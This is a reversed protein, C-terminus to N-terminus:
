PQDRALEHIYALVTEAQIPKSLFPYGGIEMAPGGTGLRSALGTLFVIPTNRLVPDAKMQAAVAGGDADPMMVDLFIVDPRFARATDVARQGANEVQVDFHGHKTLYSALLAINADDDVLLIRQIKM